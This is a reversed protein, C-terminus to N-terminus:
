VRRGLIGNIALAGLAYHIEATTDGYLSYRPLRYVDFGELPYRCFGNETTFGILYGAERAAEMVSENYSGGPYSIAKVTGGVERELAEKSNGLENRLEHGDCQALKGHSASHSEIHVGDVSLNRLQEWTLCKIGMIFDGSVVKEWDEITGMVDKINELDFAHNLDLALRRKKTEDSPFDGQILNRIRAPLTGSQRMLMEWDGPEMKRVINSVRLHWFRKGSEIFDTPAFMVCPTRRRHLLPQVYEVFESDADDFTLLATHREPKQRGEIIDVFQDLDVFTFYAAISDLQMEFIRYDIGREYYMYYERSRDIDTVRHFTFVVLMPKGRRIRFLAYALNWLRLRYGIYAATRKLANSM